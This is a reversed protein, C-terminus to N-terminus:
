PFFIGGSAFGGFGLVTSFADLAYCGAFEAVQNKWLTHWRIAGLRLWCPLAGRGGIRCYNAAGV